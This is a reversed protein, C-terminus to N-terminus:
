RGEGSPPRVALEIPIGGNSLRHTQGPPGDFLGRSAAPPAFVARTWRRFPGRFAAAVAGHWDDGPKRAHDIRKGYPPNVIVLGTEAVPVVRGVDARDFRVVDAVGAREANRRASALSGAHVDSAVIPVGSPRRRAAAAERIVKGAASDFSPFAECAFARGLGPAVESAMLAAEIAFTGSGCMPDQLPAAGTWGCLLLSGAALTERLPARGPEVRWGRKHLPDGSTDLSVTCADRVIRVFLEPAESTAPAPPRRLAELVVEAVLGTHYLRSKACSVSVRLPAGPPVLADLALRKAALGLERRGPAQFTAVRLLVRTATRMRVNAELATALTGRFSVGGPEARAGVIGAGALEARAVEELGPAVVAFLEFGPLSM